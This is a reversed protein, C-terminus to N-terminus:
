SSVEKLREDLDHDAHARRAEAKTDLAESKWSCGICAAFWYDGEPWVNRLSHGNNHRAM